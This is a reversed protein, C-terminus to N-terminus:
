GSTTTCWTFRAALRRIQEIRPDWGNTAESGGTSRSLLYHTMAETVPKPPAAVCAHNLYAFRRTVPILDRIQDVDM